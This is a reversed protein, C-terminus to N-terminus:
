KIKERLKALKSLAKNCGGELVNQIKRIIGIISSQIKKEEEKKPQRKNTQNKRGEKKSRGDKKKMKTYIEKKWKTYIYLNTPTASIYRSLGTGTYFPKALYIYIIFMYGIPPYEKGVYM